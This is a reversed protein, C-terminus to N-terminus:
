FAWRCWGWSKGAKIGRSRGRGRGDVRFAREIVSNVVGGSAPGEVDVCVDGGDGGGFFM